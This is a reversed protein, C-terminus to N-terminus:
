PTIETEERNGFFETSISGELPGEVPGTVFIHWVFQNMQVTDLYDQAYPRGDWAHGTGRIYFTYLTKDDQFHTYFKGWVFIHSGQFQAALWKMGVPAEVMQTDVVELKYKFINQM